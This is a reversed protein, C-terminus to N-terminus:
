HCASSLIAEFAFPVRSAGALCTRGEVGHSGDCIPARVELLELAVGPDDRITCSDYPVRGGLGVARVRLSSELAHCPKSVGHPGTRPM